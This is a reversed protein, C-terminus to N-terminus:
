PRPFSARTQQPPAPSGSTPAVRRTARVYPRTKTPAHCAPLPTALWAGVTSPKAARGPGIHRLLSRTTPALSAEGEGSAVRRKKPEGLIPAPAVRLGARSGADAYPQPHGHDRGMAKSRYLAQDARSILTEPDPTDLTLTSVGVSATVARLEWPAAAIAARVREAVVMAGAADTQPLIIVFEEGGYRAAIDTVRGSLRLIRSVNRLVADGAPHGFTDNFQKFHDVDLLLLSLSEGYRTARTFEERLRDQFTRHNTLGTLGDTTALRELEENASELERMKAELVIAYDRVQLEAERVAEEGRKRETIDQATGLIHWPTGDPRRQFVVERNWIWRWEGSVHRARYEMEVVEGDAKGAFAGFHSQVAPLDDPHLMAALLGDGLAQVQAVSYGLFEGVNRNSYINSMTELDFVFIISTSHETISEAFRRSERLAAEM